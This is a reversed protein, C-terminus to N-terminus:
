EHCNVCIKSNPCGDNAVGDGDDDAVNECAAGTEPAGVAPILQYIMTELEAHQGAHTTHCTMCRIDGPGSGEVYYQTDDGPQNTYVTDDTWLRTGSLDGTDGWWTRDAGAPPDYEDAGAPESVMEPHTTHWVTYEDGSHPQGDPDEMRNVDHGPGSHCYVCLSANMTEIDPTTEDGDYDIAGFRESDLFVWTDSHADHCKACDPEMCKKCRSEYNPNTLVYPPTDAPHNHEADPIYSGNAVTNDHCSYCLPLIESDGAYDPDPEMAWLYMALSKHPLHCQECTPVGSTGLDHDTGIISSKGAQSATVMALALGVAGMAAILPILKMRM